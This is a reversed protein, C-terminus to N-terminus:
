RAVKALTLGRGVPVVREFRVGSESLDAGYSLVWDADELRGALRRPLLRYRAFRRVWSLVNPNTVAAHDGTLVFYSADSPIVREAALIIRLDSLGVSRAPQLERYLMSRRGVEVDSRLQRAQTPAHWLALIALTAVVTWWVVAGFRVRGPM